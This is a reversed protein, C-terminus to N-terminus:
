DHDLVGKMKLYRAYYFHVEVHRTRKAAFPEYIKMASMNEMNLKLHNKIQTRLFEFLKSLVVEESTTM